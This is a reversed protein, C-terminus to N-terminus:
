LSFFAVMKKSLRILCKVTISIDFPYLINSNNWFNVITLKNLLSKGICTGLMLGIQAFEVSFKGQPGFCALSLYEYSKKKKSKASNM